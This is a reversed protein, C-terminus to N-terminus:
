PPSMRAGDGPRSPAGTDRDDGAPRTCGWGESPFYHWVHGATMGAQPDSQTEQQAVDQDEDDAM